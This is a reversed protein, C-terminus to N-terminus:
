KTPPLRSWLQSIPKSTASFPVVQVSVECPEINPEVCEKHQASLHEGLIELLAFREAVRPEVSTIVPPKVRAALSAAPLVLALVLVVGVTGVTASM